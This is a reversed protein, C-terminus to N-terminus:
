GEELVIMAFVSTGASVNGSRPGVSNTAAMGTGADGEPPCLPIGHKLLQDLMRSNFDGTRIDIPFKGSADGVGLVKQGPLIWHVYGSLTTLFGIDKVHDEQNLMSQYLHAISWRQPIPYAFTETLRASAEGTITNRL